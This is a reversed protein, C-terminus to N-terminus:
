CASSPWASFCPRAAASAIRPWDSALGLLINGTAMGLIGLSFIPGLADRSLNLEKALAPAVYGVPQADFGDVLMTMGCVIFLATQFRSIRANDIVAGVDIERM